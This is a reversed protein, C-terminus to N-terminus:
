RRRAAGRARRGAARPHPAADAGLRLVHLRRAPDRVARDAAPDPRRRAGARGAGVVDRGALDQRQGRGAARPRGDAGAAGPVGRRRGREARRLRLRRRVAARDVARRHVGRAPIALLALGRGMNAAIVIPLKRVRDILVGAHLSVLAFPLTELAVLIGMQMPTAHLLGGRHAAARSQHDARRVGHDDAVVLAEHLGPRALPRHLAPRPDQALHEHHHRNENNWGAIGSAAARHPSFMLSLRPHPHQPSGTEAQQRASSGALRKGRSAATSRTRPPSLAM